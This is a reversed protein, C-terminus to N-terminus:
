MRQELLDADVHYEPAQCRLPAELITQVEVLTKRVHEDIGAVNTGERGVSRV